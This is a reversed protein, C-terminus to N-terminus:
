DIERNSLKNSILSLGISIMFAFVAIAMAYGFNANTFGQQYMYHLVVQSSNGPGGATMIQVLLFSIVLVGNISFVITIRIIEWVMPITIKFFQQIPSAGDISAAEYLEAPINDMGALYMVMYYGVAQWIMTIAIAWMVTSKDGLWPKELNGMGIAELLTNIVGM